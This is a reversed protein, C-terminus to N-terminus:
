QLAQSDVPDTKEIDPADFGGFTPFAALFAARDIRQEPCAVLTEHFMHNTGGVHRPRFGCFHKVFFVELANGKAVIGHVEGEALLDDGVGPPMCHPHNGHVWEIASQNRLMRFPEVKYPAFAIGVDDVGGEAENDGVRLDCGCENPEVRFLFDVLGHVGHFM